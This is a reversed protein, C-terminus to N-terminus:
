EQNESTWTFLKHPPQSAITMAMRYMNESTVQSIQKLIAPHLAIRLKQGDQNTFIAAPRGGNGVSLKGNGVTCGTSVQLGDVICSLPPTLGTETHVSALQGLLHLALRGMRVGTALFPGLHGHFASARELLGKLEQEVAM